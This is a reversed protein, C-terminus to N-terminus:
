INLNNLPLIICLFQLNRLLVLSLTKVTYKLPKYMCESSNSFFVTFIFM